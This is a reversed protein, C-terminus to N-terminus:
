EFYSALNKGHSPPDDPTAISRLEDPVPWIEITDNGVTMVLVEKIKDQPAHDWARREIRARFVPMSPGSYPGTPSVLSCTQILAM